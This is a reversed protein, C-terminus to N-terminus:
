SKNRQGKKYTMCTPKDFGYEAGTEQEYQRMDTELCHQM